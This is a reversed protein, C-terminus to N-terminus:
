RLRGVPPTTLNARSLSKLLSERAALSRYLGTFAGTDSCRNLRNYGAIVRFRADVM